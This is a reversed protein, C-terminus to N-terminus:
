NASPELREMLGPSGPSNGGTANLGANWVTQIKRIQEAESKAMQGPLGRKIAEAVKPSQSFDATAEMMAMSAAFITAGDFGDVFSEPTIGRAQAQAECITFLVRGFTEPDDALAGIGKPDGPKAKLDYGAERLKPVLGLTIRIEWERGLLDVFKAV